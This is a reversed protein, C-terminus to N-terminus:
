KGEGTEILRVARLVESISWAQAICGVPRHPANAEYIEHLQGVGENLLEDILPSLVAWAERKSEDSFRGVRLVAEVYPGILWAWVTGQHYAKDRQFQDHCYSPHYNPDGPPLTRLGRPTLLKERVVNLVLRQQTQPIPSHMLSAAFIQNPRMAQDRVEKLAPNVYASDIDAAGQEPGREGRSLAPTLAPGGSAGAGGSAAAAAAAAPDVYVHDILCGRSEDWFTKAFARKVRAALKAYHDSIHKQDQKLAESLAMLAAYWLCNIEVAKGHRPTFVVGGTAADMWTLQTNPNGASILGDGAMKIEYQTGKIYADMISLVAPCLWKTWSERDKSMEVYRLAAHIFWLSGDVTNYHAANDDYDDFRNPVLGDKISEAFVQLTARAEEFRGTELLLGPLAIFTDRGWDAFWPYGAIITALKRGKVTRDVVFDDSAIALIRKLSPGHALPWPGLASNSRAAGQESGREGRSLAPTLAPRGAGGNAGSMWPPVMADDAGGGQSKAGPVQGENEGLAALIPKLHEARVANIGEESAATQKGLNVTFTIVEEDKRPDLPIEFAGPVFYDERDEQGRDTDGRYVVNYWWDRTRNFRHTRECRFTAAISGSPDNGMGGSREVTVGDVRSEISFNGAGDKHLMAHFDRLTLMPSLKLEVANPAIEEGPAGPITVAERLGRISYRLTAAPRKWHLFLERTFTVVGASYTWAISLGKRFRKLMTHGRPAYTDPQGNAGPFACNSFELVQTAGRKTLLLQEFMQSLAVVRGVPPRSAAILLGHYRRSNVGPVTGMAFGGTGNTLLWEDPLHTLADGAVAWDHTLWAPDLNLAPEQGVIGGGVAARPQVPRSPAPSPASPAQAVPASAAAPKTAAVPVPAPKAVPTPAPAPKGAVAKPAAAAKSKGAVGGAPKKAAAAKTNSAKSQAEPAPKAAPKSAPTKKKSPDPRSSPKKAM